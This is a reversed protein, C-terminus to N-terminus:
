REVRMEESKNIGSTFRDRRDSKDPDHNSSSIIRIATASEAIRLAAPGHIDDRL